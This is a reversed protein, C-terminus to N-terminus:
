LGEALDGLMEDITGDRLVAELDWVTSRLQRNGKRHKAWRIGDTVIAERVQAHACAVDVAELGTTRTGDLDTTLVLARTPSRRITGDEREDVVLRWCALAEEPTSRADEHPIADLAYGLLECVPTFWHPVLTMWAGGGSRVMGQRQAWLAALAVRVQEVNPRRDHHLIRRGLEGLDVVVDGVRARRARADLLPLVGTLDTHGESDAYITALPVTGIARWSIGVPWGPPARVTFPVFGDQDNAAPGPEVSWSADVEADVREAVQFLLTSPRVETRLPVLGCAWRGAALVGLSVTASSSRPLELRETANPGHLFLVLTDPDELDLGHAQVIVEVGVEFVPYREGRPTARWTSPPVLAWELGPWAQGLGLGLTQLAARTTPSPATALDVSWLRWGDTFPQGMEPDGVGAPILLYYVQGLALVGGVQRRGVGGADVRFVTVSERPLAEAALRELGLDEEHEFGV